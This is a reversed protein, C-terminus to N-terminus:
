DENDADVDVNEETQPGIKLSRYFAHYVDPIVSCLAMLHDKKEKTIGVEGAYAREFQFLKLNPPRGRKVLNFEEATDADLDMKVSLIFPRDGTATVQRIGSINFLKKNWCFVNALKKLDMIMENSVDTVLYPKGVRKATRALASWQEPTFIDINRSREIVSHVSDNENQTHGKELYTHVLEMDYEVAMQLLLSLIYKNKNQGWCNDSFFYIKRVGEEKKKSVFLRLASGIENSGRKAVQEPWIYCYGQHKGGDYVTFNRVALKTHYYAISANVKPADLSKELDFCAMCIEPNKIAEEKHKNKIERALEKRKLHKQIIEEMEKKKEETANDYAYCDDCCDKKPKYFAIKYEGFTDRYQRLSAIPMEPGTQRQTKMWEVYMTHMAPVSLHQALYQMDPTDARRYHSPVREFLDIHAEISQKILAMKPKNHSPHRGRKDPSTIVGRRSKHLATVVMSDSIDLTSLFMTKCVRITRGEYSFTYIRSHTRPSDGDPKTCKAKPVEKVFKDLFRLQLDYQGLKWFSHFVHLRMEETVRV